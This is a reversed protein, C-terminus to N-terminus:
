TTWSPRNDAMNFFFQSTASDPNGSQKAMAITAEVNSRDASYENVIPDDTPIMQLTSYDQGTNVLKVAGGQLIFGPVSRHIMSLDYTHLNDKEHTNVYSLFNQCTVPASDYLEVDVNNWYGNLLFIMRVTRGHAVCPLILVALLTALVRRPM